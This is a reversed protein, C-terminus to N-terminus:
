SVLAKENMMGMNLKTKPTQPNTMLTAASASACRKEFQREKKVNSMGIRRTVIAMMARTAMM